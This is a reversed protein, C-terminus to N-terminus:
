GPISRVPKVTIGLAAMLEARVMRTFEIPSKKGKKTKNFKM